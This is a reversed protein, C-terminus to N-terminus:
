SVSRVKTQHNLLFGQGGYYKIAWNKVVTDYGGFAHLLWAYTFSGFCASTTAVEITLESANHKQLKKRDLLLFGRDNSFWFVKKSSYENQDFENELDSRESNLDNHKFESDKRPAALMSCITCLSSNDSNCAMRGQKAVIENAWSRLDYAHPEMIEHLKRFYNLPNTHDVSTLSEAVATTLHCFSPLIEWDDYIRIRLVDVDRKVVFEENESMKGLGDVICNPGDPSVYTTHLLFLTMMSM